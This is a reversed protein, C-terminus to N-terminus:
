PKINMHNIYLHRVNYYYEGYKIECKRLKDSLQRKVCQNFTTDEAPLYMPKVELEDHYIGRTTSVKGNAGVFYIDPSIETNRKVMVHFYDLGLLWDDFPEVPWTDLDLYIGGYNDLLYFRLADSVATQYIIENEYANKFIPVNFIKYYKSKEDNILDLCKAVDPHVANKVNEEHIFNVAFDPNVKKYTNMVHWAYEPVGKGFWIFHLIKPIM